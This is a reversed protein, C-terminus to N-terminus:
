ESNLAYHLYWLFFRTHNYATEMPFCEEREIENALACESLIFRRNIFSYTLIDAPRRNDDNHVSKGRKWLAYDSVM